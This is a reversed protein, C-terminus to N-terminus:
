FGASVTLRFRRPELLLVRAYGSKNANYRLPMVEDEDTLNSVNLHFTLEPRFSGVALKRRYGAFADMKFDQPGIYTEGYTPTGKADRALVRRGLKSTGQWRVGGGVFVGKLRGGLFTYRGSANAKYPREGYGFSNFDRVDNIIRRLEVMEEDVTAASVSNVLKGAGPTRLWFATERPFWVDFEPVIRSRDVKTYSFNVVATLNRTPNLWNSVEFGTTVSDSLGALNGGSDGLLHATYETATIRDNTLLTDLIRQTPARINNPEATINIGTTQIRSTRFATARVFWRGELVDLMLGFDRGVGKPPPPVLEDPLIRQNQSAQSANDAENYFASLSSTLHLVGGLTSTTPKYIDRAAIDSTFRLVNAIARGALVEPDNASLRTFGATAFVIRDSRLGGTLVLRSNFFESRSVVQFSDITRRLDSGATSSDVWTNHYTKGNRVVTFDQSGDGGIYTEFKGSTVYHRRFFANAANEPAAANSIPVGKEDVLIETGPYRWVRQRDHEAIAALQHTGLKGLKLDWGLAARMGERRQEARDTTWRAELYYGGANPNAVVAPGGQPDPITASPDGYFVNSLANPAFVWANLQERRYSAELSLTQSIQHSVTAVFRDFDMDRVAGPGYTSYDYPIVKSPVYTAGARDATPTNLDEYTSELVRLNVASGTTLVFPKSGDADTVYINRASANRNIGVARDAATWAADNKIQAGKLQWLNLADIANLPRAVHSVTHGNEYSATISTSKWPAARIAVAGRSDDSSDWHRWGGSKQRLGNLRFALKGPLLSQNHDLEFRRLDWQGVQLRTSTRTQGLQARKTTFNLLGGPSAFGFLISNPGSSIEMRETNYNDIPVASEFFDQAVTAFLGRVRVTAQTTTSGGYFSTNAEASDDNVNIQLNAAYGVSDALNLAGFDTLFESTFVMVSAATDKLRSNLRSGSTTNGAQYGVDKDSTVEFPSLVVAKPEEGADQSPRALAPAAATARPANPTTTEKRVSFLGSKEDVGVTLGTGATMRDLADRATLEGRVANTATGGISEASFVIERGSQQAFLKLTRSAAGSPVDFPKVAADAAQLVNTPLLLLLCTLLFARTVPRLGSNFRPSYTM